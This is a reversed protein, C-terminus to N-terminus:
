ASAEVGALIIRLLAAGQTAEHLKKLLDKIEGEYVHVDDGHLVIGEIVDEHMEMESYLERLLDFDEATPPCIQFKGTVQKPDSM